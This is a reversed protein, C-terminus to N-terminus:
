IVVVLVSWMLGITYCKDPVHLVLLGSRLVDEVALYDSFYMM